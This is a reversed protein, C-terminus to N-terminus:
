KSCFVQKGTVFPFTNFMYGQPWIDIFDNTKTYNKMGIKILNREIQQKSNKHSAASVSISIRFERTM